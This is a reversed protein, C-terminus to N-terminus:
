GLIVALSADFIVQTDTIGLPKSLVVPLNIDFGNGLERITVVGDAVLDKSFQGQYIWAREEFIDILSILEQNVSNIDRVKQKSYSNKVRTVDAVITCGKWKPSNFANYVTNLLNQVIAIDRAWRYGNSASPVEDPHYYTVVDQITVVGNKVMSTSIGAKVALDRNDYENSWRESSSLGAIVWGVNLDVPPEEPRINHLLALRGCLWAALEAPHNPSTPVAWCINTRDTKRADGATLLDAFDTEGDVNGFFARFPRHILKAYCGELENGTGNYTSIANLVADTERGYGCVIDTFWKENLADGSGLAALGDDIDPDGSGGTCDTCAATLGAPLEEKLGWNLSVTIDNGYTGSTKATITTTGATENTAVVPLEKVANIANYLLTALATHTTGVPVAIPNLPIGAIYAFLSGAETSTGTFAVSGAAKATTDNEPQPVYWCEIGQSGQFARVALRHLMSGFGTVAGVQEPSLAQKLVNDEITTKAPDYSGILCIKRALVQGALALPQNNVSAATAAALSSPLITM